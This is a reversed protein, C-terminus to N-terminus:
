SSQANTGPVPDIRTALWRGATLAALAAAMDALLDPVESDRNLMPIAQILEIAAGFATLLVFLRVVSRDRFGVGALFGLTAFALVHLVKDSPNGPVAPPHPLTAMVFSVIAAAFFAIRAARQM